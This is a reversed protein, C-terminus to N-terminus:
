DVLWPPDIVGGGIRRKIWDLGKEIDPRQAIQRPKVFAWGEGAREAVVFNFSYFPEQGMRLDTIILEGNVESMKFFGHSFWAIRETEWHGRVADFLEPHRPHSKLNLQPTEDLLSYFGEAYGEPTMVLVRWLLTNFATPTVLRQEVTWQHQALYNDTVKEVHWQAVVTWALYATSLSIGWANWRLGSTRQFLLAAVIGFLLPLTYLPDIIFISGVGFPYDSFPLAMQTGYVTMFDLLVHTILILWIALCWRKFLEIKGSWRSFLWALAPSLLTLYFLSHSAARHFTMNRIPDGHDIFADLDPLTGLAAGLLAAKWLATRRGMVAMGVASGLAAQSLSDM